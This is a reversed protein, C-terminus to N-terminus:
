LVWSSDIAITLDLVILRFLLYVEVYWYGSGTSTYLRVGLEPTGRGCV